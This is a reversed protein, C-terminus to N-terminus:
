SFRHGFPRMRITGDALKELYEDPEYYRDARIWRAGSGHQKYVATEPKTIKAHDLESWATQQNVRVDAPPRDLAARMKDPNVNHKSCIFDFFTSKFFLCLDRVEWFEDRRMQKPQLLVRCKAVLGRKWAHRYDNVALEIVALIVRRCGVDDLEIPPMKKWKEPTRIHPAFKNFPKDAVGM